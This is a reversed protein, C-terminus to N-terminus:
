QYHVRKEGVKFQVYTAILIIVFLIMAQASATGFKYNIFADRYISYVILNTSEAPGGKTLIDIQGFSQFSHIVTVVTVFFLTPSLLPLTIRFLNVWYGAGDIKASEYLEESINQLGGLLVIFNFGVSMWVTSLAISTLAWDPSTLWQIPSAGLTKLIHNFLGISPHFLFLWITSGAAVSVGLSSSFIVRFFEVGRVRENALVALFLALLISTPVTYLVFLFTSKMSLQFSDSALLQTYNEVGVFQVPVGRPDTLYLSYYITKLIPYFVFVIMLFLSPGVFMMGTGFSRLSRKLDDGGAIAAANQVM